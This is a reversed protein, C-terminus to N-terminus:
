AKLTVSTSGCVYNGHQGVFTVYVAASHTDSSVLRPPINALIIPSYPRGLELINAILTNM